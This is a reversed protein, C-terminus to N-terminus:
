NVEFEIHLRVVSATPVGNVTGPTFTWKSAAQLARRDLRGIGSSQLIAEGTAKGQANVQVEVVCTKNLAEMRLDDPIEPQPERSADIAPQAAVIVPPPAPIPALPAKPAQAIQVPAKKAPPAPKSVPAVPAPSKVPAVPKVPKSPPAVPVQGAIGNGSNDVTAGSGGSGNGKGAIVKPQFPNPKQHTVHSHVASAAKKAHSAAKKAKKAVKQKPPPPAAPKPPPPLKMFSVKILDQQVKKFAGFHALIPLAIVHAAISVVLIRALLPNRQRRRRAM